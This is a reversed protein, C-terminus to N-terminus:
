WDPEGHRQKQSRKEKTGEGVADVEEHIRM